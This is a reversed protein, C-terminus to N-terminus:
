RGLVRGDGTVGVTHLYGAAVGVVARWAGVACQGRRDNGAAVVSGDARVGVAVPGRRALLSAALLAAEGEFAVGVFLLVYGYKLLLSEV